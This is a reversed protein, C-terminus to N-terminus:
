TAVFATQVVSVATRGPDTLVLVSQFGDGIACLVMTVQVSRWFRLSYRQGASIGALRRAFSFMLVDLATQVIWSRAVPAPGTLFCPVSAVVLGALGLLWPDRLYRARGSSQSM